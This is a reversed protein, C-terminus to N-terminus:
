RQGRATARSSTSTAWAPRKPRSEEDEAGPLPERDQLPQGRRGEDQNRTKPRPCHSGGRRSRKQCSKIQCSNKENNSPVSIVSIKSVKQNSSFKKMTQLLQCHNKVDKSKVLNKKVTQLFQYLSKESVYLTLCNSVSFIVM